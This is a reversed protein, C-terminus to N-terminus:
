KIKIQQKYKVPPVAGLHISLQRQVGGKRVILLRTTQYFSVKNYYM